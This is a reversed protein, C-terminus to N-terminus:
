KKAAPLPGCDSAIIGEARQLESARAADDLVIREGKDNVKALRMGSALSNRADQARRCNEARVSAVREEEAKRKAAEAAEAQKAKDELAKQKAAAAPDPKAPASAAGSAPAAAANPAKRPEEPKIDGYQPTNATKRGSIAPAAPGAPAAAKGTSVRPTVEGPAKLIRSEPVDAPPPRDSFVKRGDSGVWQWQAFAQASVLCLSALMLPRFFTM